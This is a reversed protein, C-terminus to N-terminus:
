EFGTSNDQEGSVDSNDNDSTAPQNDGWTNDTRANNCGYWANNNLGADGGNYRKGLQANRNYLVENAQQITKEMQSIDNDNM